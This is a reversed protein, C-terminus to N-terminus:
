KLNPIKSKEQLMISSLRWSTLTQYIALPFVFLFLLLSMGIGWKNSKLNYPCFSLPISQFLQLRAAEDGWYKRYLYLVSPVPRPSFINKPRFADWHGWVRLGGDKDKLHERSAFPNSINIYGKLYSRVGFEGDGMRMREFQEDFLGVMQFVTKKIMVNGTDLQDSLRFFSYNEPVDAGVKSISIGSSIEAQFYDLCKLHEYIWNNNVRSDDDLFLLYDGESENIGRNRAQWLAPEKQELVRIPFSYEENEITINKESQDIIIVKFNEYTQDNLDLLVKQLSTPRNFTPIIINVLPSSEILTSNFNNYLKYVCPNQYVNVQRVRRTSYFGHLEHFPHHFRLLRQVLTLWAWVPKYMKRIFSYLEAPTIKQKRQFFSSIVDSSIFGAMVKKCAIGWEELEADALNFVASSLNTHISSSKINKEKPQPLTEPILHFFWIPKVYKM